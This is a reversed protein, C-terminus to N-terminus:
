VEAFQSPRRTSHLQRVYRCDTRSFLQCKTGSTVSDAKFTCKTEVAPQGSPSRCPQIVLVTCVAHQVVTEAVSRSLVHALGTRGYTSIVILNAYVRKVAEVIAQYGVGIGVIARCKVGCKGLSRCIEELKEEAARAQHELVAGSDTVLLPSEYFGREVVFLLILEAEYPRSFEVAEDLATLSSEPFDIPVLIREIAM